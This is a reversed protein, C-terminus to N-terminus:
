LELRLRCERLIAESTSFSAISLSDHLDLESGVDWRLGERGIETSYLGSFRKGQGHCPRVRMFSQITALLWKFGKTRLITDDTSSYQDERFDLRALRALRAFGM